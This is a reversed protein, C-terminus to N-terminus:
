AMMADDKRLTDTVFEVAKGAIIIGKVSSLEYALNRRKEYVNEMEERLTNLKTAFRKDETTAVELEKFLWLCGNISGVVTTVRKQGDDGGFVRRHSPEEDMLKLLFSEIEFAMERAEKGLDCLLWERNGEKDIMKELFLVTKASVTEGAVSRLEKLKVSEGGHSMIFSMASIITEVIGWCINSVCGVFFSLGDVAVGADAAVSASGFGDEAFLDRWVFWLFHDFCNCTMSNWGSQNGNLTKFCRSARMSFNAVEDKKDAPELCMWLIIQLVYAETMGEASKIVLDRALGKTLHDALNQQSRVYEISIVRNMILEHIMGHRVGLHLLIELLMNKLWEAEMGAAALAVFEYEITSGTICTQKRALPTAETYVDDENNPVIQLHKRLEEVVEDLKQKKAAKEAQTKIKRKLEKSEEEEPQEKTKELFAVNSNFYKEFIPRINDYSMRMIANDEKEKRQVQEIVDDWNINKNLEVELERAYAEDQKIQAQKKLPKPEEVLIGKRKDKSKPESHIIISPTATEEPDRIVVGKRRKAASPAATITAATIPTTAATITASAATVVETMLKASTVVELVKKLETPELEDDQREQVDANEEIEANKEVAVEKSVTAVDKLTVDENVNMNAIIEGQKSVDVMITYGSSKVRQATRVKKIEKVWIGKVQEEERVEQGIPSPPPTHIVQSTSPLEQSPPPPQTTPTPSPISPEAAALADNVDVGAVVEDAQQAVIMGTLLCIVALAMSSSFENWSTRKASMCQLITHILFKWQPSFFAKYFTLKTFPKEYRMRSLETFIEENPLFDISEADDLRLAERITAETIIVKKGYDMLQNQIWLVQTYCSAAAVYEAETSSTVVVTKKKCQWSILRCGLFQCGGTTSKRDLSAGAYDSNSYAVLNFPSDKPYLLGLHPKGKLYRFIRKVAHLHSIKPTVQFRGCACIAFMIDPRSLTLYILSSIMSRYTHVDVDEGDPDKLLPKETDIPTSASKEDTLGFKRLIEAVYKDHCARPAQHLGYLAKVVKYVKDPYDPDKFGPPQCVYVEEEITGYLFSSKVDIQYVMFGMFSAYALFLRIAEIKAIPAFVEEYDIGEEQTYGQAVLRAKNRVVIGRKDKKNRFVWKTGIARKRNPLDVISQTVPHDKHVRTTPIPSVTINTELNTFDAEAGVDEEDDSYTIDELEPMNPDDPYQSTDVYSSKRHTPSVTTNSPGAASFTNTNNTLIELSKGKAERKTKDDHKKTQASSSPSLYVESEPKEGEFKPKKGRFADDDDTNQPNKSGSSWLPFLVYQQVNEEGLPDLTTLITVPCGFHRMFGISPTKGLLLEHPTKNPPKTVLVRNQVYCATNVAKAWFSIPLLSDALMTRTAETLTRNKRETIGNQQPTRPVSFERKIGKM